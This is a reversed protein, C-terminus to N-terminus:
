ILIADMAYDPNFRDRHKFLNEYEDLMENFLDELFTSFYTIASDKMADLMIHASDLDGLAMYRRLNKTDVDDLLVEFVENGTLKICEAAVIQLDSKTLDHYSQVGSQIHNLLLSTISTNYYVTPIFNM